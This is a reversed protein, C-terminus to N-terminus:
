SYYTAEFIQQPIIGLLAEDCLNRYTRTDCMTVVFFTSIYMSTHVPFYLQAASINSYINKEQFFIFSSSNVFEKNSKWAASFCIFITFIYLTTVSDRQLIRLACRHWHLLINVKQLSNLSLFKLALLCPSVPLPLAPSGLCLFVLQMFLLLLFLM